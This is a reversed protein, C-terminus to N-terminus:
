RRGRAEGVLRRGGDAVTAGRDHHDIGPRVGVHDGQALERPAPSPHTGVRGALRELGGREVDEARGVARGQAVHGQLQGRAQM